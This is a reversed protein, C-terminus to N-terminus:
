GLLKVLVLSPQAEGWFATSEFLPTFGRAAYFARTLAYGEDPDSPGLTLLYVFRLGRERLWREVPALLASGIGGRHLEPAVALVVIEASARTRQEAAIFGVIAGDRRAVWSAMRGLGAIYGANVDPFGFWHPLRALVAACGDRDAEAFPAVVIPPKGGAPRESDREVSM